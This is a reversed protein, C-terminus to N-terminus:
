QRCILACSWESCGGRAGTGRSKGANNGRCLLAIRPANGSPRFHMIENNELFIRLGDTQDLGVPKGCLGNLLSEIAVPSTALEQLLTRSSETPVNQLRDSATFRAPLSQTLASIKCRNERALTLLCLIPLVADRTLLPALLRDNKEIRSGVLFGGNPEFGVVNQEGSEILGEIAEIM